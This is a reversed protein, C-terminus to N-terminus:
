RIQPHSCITYLGVCVRSSSNLILIYHVRTEISKMNVKSFISIKQKVLSAVYMKCMHTEMSKPANLNLSSKVILPVGEGVNTWKITPESDLNNETFMFM